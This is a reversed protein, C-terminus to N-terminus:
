NVGTPRAAMPTGRGIPAASALDHVDAYQPLYNARPVIGLRKVLAIAAIWACHDVHPQRSYLACYGCVGASACSVTAACRAGAAM